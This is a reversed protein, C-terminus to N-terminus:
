TDRVVHQWSDSFMFSHNTDLVLRKPCDPYNVLSFGVEAGLYHFFIFMIVEFGPGKELKEGPAKTMRMKMHATDGRADWFPLIYRTIPLQSDGTGILFSRHSNPFIWPFDQSEHASM